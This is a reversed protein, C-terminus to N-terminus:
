YIRKKKSYSQVNQPFNEKIKEIKIPGPSSPLPTVRTYNERVFGHLHGLAEFVLTPM